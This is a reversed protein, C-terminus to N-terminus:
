DGAVQRIEVPKPRLPLEEQRTDVGFLGLEGAEMAIFASSKLTEVGPLNSKVVFGVDCANRQANPKFEFTLSIKRKAEAKTNPDAVNELLNALEHDFVEM